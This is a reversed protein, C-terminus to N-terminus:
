DRRGRGGKFLGGFMSRSSLLQAGVSRSTGPSATKGDTAATSPAAKTTPSEMRPDQSMSLRAEDVVARFSPSPGDRSPREVPPRQGVRKSSHDEIVDAMTRQKPKPATLPGAAGGPQAKLGKSIRAHMLEPSRMLLAHEETGDIPIVRYAFKGFREMWHKVIQYNGLNVIKYKLTYQDQGLANRIPREFQDRLVTVSTLGQNIRRELEEPWIM